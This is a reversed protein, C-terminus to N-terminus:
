IVLAKGQVNRDSCVCLILLRAKMSVVLLFIIVVAKRRNMENPRESWPMEPNEALATLDPLERIDDQEACSDEAHELKLTDGNEVAALEMRFNRDWLVDQM